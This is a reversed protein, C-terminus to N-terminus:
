SGTRYTRCRRLAQSQADWGGQAGAQGQEAYQLADLRRHDVRPVVVAQGVAGGGQEGAEVLQALPLQHGHHAPGLRYWTFVDPGM